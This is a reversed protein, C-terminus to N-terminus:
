KGEGEEGRKEGQIKNERVGLRRGEEEEEEEEEMEEKKYNCVFRTSIVRRM